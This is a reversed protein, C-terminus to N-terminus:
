EDRVAQCGKRDGEEAIPGSRAGVIIGQRTNQPNCVIVAFSQLSVSPIIENM